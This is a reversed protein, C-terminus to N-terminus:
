GSTPTRRRSRASAGGAQPAPFLRSLLLHLPLYLLLVFGLWLVLLWLWGPCGAPPVDAAIGLTWNINNAPTAAARSAPLVLAALLAQAPLARRDYGLRALLWVLLPPLALHFLSLARVAAPLAADFMYGALGVVDPGGFLRSVFGATWALEPLLVALAMMSALLPLEFWLALLVAFLAVDSFWLFNAPGYWAWYVPVLAGVYLAVAARLWLPFAGRRVQRWASTVGATTSNGYAMCGLADIQVAFSAFPSVPYDRICRVHM